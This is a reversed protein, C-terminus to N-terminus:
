GSTPPDPRPLPGPAASGAARKKVWERVLPPAEALRWADQEHVILLVVERNPEARAIRHAPDFTVDALVVYSLPPLETPPDDPAPEAIRVPELARLRIQQVAQWGKEYEGRSLPEHRVSWLLRFQPYDGAACTEMAQRAFDNVAPDAVRLSDPFVLLDPPKAPHLVPPAAAPPASTDSERRCGIAVLALAPGIVVAAPAVCTLLCRVGDM